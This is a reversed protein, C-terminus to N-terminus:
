AGGDERWAALTAVQDPHLDTDFRLAEAALARDGPAVAALTALADGAPAHRAALRVALAAGYPPCLLVDGLLARWEAASLGLRTRRRRLVVVQLLNVAYILPVAPLAAVLGVRRALLPLAVFTLVFAAASMLRLPRLAGLRDALPAVGASPVALPLAFAVVAGSLPLPVDFRRRGIGFAGRSVRATLGAGVATFVITPGDIRRVTYQLYLAAAALWLVTGDVAIV